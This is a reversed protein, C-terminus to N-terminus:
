TASVREAATAKPATTLVRGRWPLCALGTVVSVARRREPMFRLFFGLRLLWGALGPIPIGYLETASRGLGFGMATGLGRYRFPRPRRGDAVRSINRGLHGGAKIAWLANAAVPKGTRPHSVRAADGAAWVRPAVQLTADTILRGASDHPLSELGPLAVPRQGITGLVAAAPLSTGDSLELATQNVATVTAGTRVEVGLRALERDVRAAVAPQEHRLGPLVAAGSHVLVVPNKAGGARLRDAVAAALEVGAMGGGVIVAAPHRVAPLAGSEPSDGAGGGVISALRELFRRLAGPARLTFGHEAMGPVQDIPERGGVGVILQDYPFRSETGGGITEAIVLRQALDVRLVRGHVFRAQPLVEALPTRTVALPLLGAVVEGTFGHFNHHDDASVVTITLASGLVKSGLVGSGVRRALSRYAHLTAYGGGIMVVRIPETTRM